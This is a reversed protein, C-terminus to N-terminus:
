LYKSFVDMLNSNWNGTYAEFGGVGTFGWYHWSMGYSEAAKIAADTWKAREESTPGNGGCTSVGFEGMNMPIHGGNIDPFHVLASDVYSKFQMPIKSIDTDKLRRGCDYGHGQHTFEFPEYYHGTFIINGDAPLKVNSIQAFKSYGNGEFMITKGPANKRIVEYASLMLDDVFKNKMEHPENFIELVIQDDGYEDMERAVQEWMGLFRAKEKDYGSPNNDYYLAYNNLEMYHHFNVIVILGQALALDIDAKVGALRGADLTYPAEKAADYNWRVPLRISKFGADKIIKFYEDKICNSWGCDATAGKQGQSEWANGLNIGPGLKENMARGKSYDVPVVNLKKWTSNQCLVYASEHQVINGNKEATCAGNKETVAIDLLEEDSAYKWKSKKCLFNKDGSEKLKGELAETCEGFLESGERNQLVAASAIRWISDGCVFNKDYYQSFENVAKKIEEQNTSDCTGLGFTEFWFIRVKQDFNSLEQPLIMNELTYSLDDMRQMYAWDAIQAKTKADDWTGDKEIDAAIADIIGQIDSSANDATILFSITLLNADAASNGFVSLGRAPVLHNQMHFARLVEGEAKGQADAYSMSKEKMLYAIRPAELHTLMNVNATDGDVGRILSRLTMTANADGQVINLFKGSVEQMAFSPLGSYPLTYKGFEDSVTGSAADDTPSLDSESLYQLKVTAGAQFPGECVGTLTGTYGGDPPPVDPTLITTDKPASSSSNANQHNSSSDGNGSDDITDDASNSNSPDDSCAIFASAPLLLASLIIAPLCIKRISM